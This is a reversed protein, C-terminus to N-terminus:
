SELAIKALKMAGEKSGAVAIFRKNHCFVADLVGTVEALEENRKGAWAEPLDKRSDFSNAPDDRVARVKWETSGHSEPKVVFVVDRHQAIVDEWPYQGEIVVIRKDEASEYAKEVFQKGELFDKVVLIERELINKGLKVLDSFVEDNTKGEEQEKWTPHFAAFLNHIIYPQTNNKAEYTEVGNDSADIPTVLNKDIIELAEKSGCLEEGFERWVLGFSSYPIGDEREGAGGKQHHDFIKKESDYAGGVDIIYDGTSIVDADRTRVIEYSTEGLTLIVTAVAFIDDAHFSGAHTIIRVKESKDKTM